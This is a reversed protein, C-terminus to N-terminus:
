DVLEVGLGYQELFILIIDRVKEDQIVNYLISMKLDDLAGVWDGFEKTITALREMDQAVLAEKYRFVLDEVRLKIIEIGSRYEELLMTTMREGNEIVFAKGENSLSQLWEEYEKNVRGIKETDLRQMADISRIIYHRLTSEVDTPQEIGNLNTNDPVQASLMTPMCMLLSALLITKLHRM